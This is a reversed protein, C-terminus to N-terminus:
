RSFLLAYLHKIAWWYLMMLAMGTHIRHLLETFCPRTKRM